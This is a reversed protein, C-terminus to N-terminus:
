KKGPALMSMVVGIFSIGMGIIIGNTRENMLGLNNIAQGGVTQGFVETAPVTVSTDFVFFFYGAVCLGVVFLIFGFVKSVDTDWVSGQRPSVIVVSDDAM